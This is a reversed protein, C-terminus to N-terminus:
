LLKLKQCFFFFSMKKIAFVSFFLLFFLVSVAECTIPNRKPSIASSITQQRGAEKCQRRELGFVTMYLLIRSDPASPEKM